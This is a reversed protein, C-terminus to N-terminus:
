AASKVLILSVNTTCYASSKPTFPSFSYTVEYGPNDKVTVAVPESPKFNELTTSFEDLKAQLVDDASTATYSEFYISINSDPSSM